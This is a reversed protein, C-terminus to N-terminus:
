DGDRKAGVALRPPKGPRVCSARLHDEFGCEVQWVSFDRMGQHTMQMELTLKVESYTPQVMSTHLQATSSALCLQSEKFAM